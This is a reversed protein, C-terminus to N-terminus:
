LGDSSEMRLSPEMDSDTFFVISQVCCHSPKLGERPRPGFVKRTYSASETLISGIPLRQKRGQPQSCALNKDSISTGMAGLTQVQGM